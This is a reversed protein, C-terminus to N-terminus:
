KEPARVAPEHSATPFVTLLLCFSRQGLKEAARGNETLSLDTLKPALSAPPETTVMGDSNKGIVQLLSSLPLAAGPSFRAVLVLRETPECTYLLAYSELISANEASKLALLKHLKSRSSDLVHKVKSGDELKDAVKKVTKEM